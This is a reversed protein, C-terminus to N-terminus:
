RRTRKQRRTRDGEKQEERGIRKRNEQAEKEQGEM